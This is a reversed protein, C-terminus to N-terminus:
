VGDSVPNQFGSSGRFEASYCGDPYVARTASQTDWRALIDAGLARLAAFPHEARELGPPLDGRAKHFYFWHNLNPCFPAVDPAEGRFAALIREKGTM